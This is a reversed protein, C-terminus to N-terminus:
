ATRVLFEKCLKEGLLPALQLGNKYLGSLLYVPQTFRRATFVGCIPERNKYFVREGGQCSLNGDLHAFDIENRFLNELEALDSQLVKPDLAGKHSTSGLSIKNSFQCYAHTERLLAFTQSQEEVDKRFTYGSVLQAKPIDIDLYDRFFSIGSGPALFIHDCRLVEQSDNRLRWNGDHSLHTMEEDVFKVGRATLIERMTSLLLEVDVIADFCYQLAAAPRRHSQLFVASEGIDEPTLLKGGYCGFFDERYIRRQSKRWKELSSFPEYVMGEVIIKRKTQEGLRRCFEAMRRAGLIKNKFLPTDALFLGKNGVVGQAAFSAAKEKKGVVACPINRETLSWASFFGGLGAGVIGIM